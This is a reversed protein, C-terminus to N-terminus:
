EVPFNFYQDKYPENRLTYHWWEQDYNKFGAQNMIEVLLARNARAQADPAPNATHSLPDFFDYIGGMDLGDITLDVTSARSHGSKEAIYGKAFLESKKISPYFAAKTKTDDLDQAWRMFHDVARQPRYCDRVKLRLGFPTLAEQAKALGQAAQKTLVCINANYGDVPAGVFNAPGVYAMEVIIDPAIDALDVIDAPRPDDAQAGGALMTLGALGIAAPLTSKLTIGRFAFVANFSTM